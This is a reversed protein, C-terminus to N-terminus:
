DKDGLSHNIENIHINDALEPNAKKFLDVIYHTQIMALQSSRTAFAITNISSQEM